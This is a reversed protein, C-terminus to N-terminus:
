AFWEPPLLWALEGGGPTIVHRFDVGAMTGPAFGFRGFGLMETLCRSVDPQHGVCVVTQATREALHSLLEDCRLGPALLLSEELTATQGLEEHLIEATEKARRLPSHLILDPLEERDRLWRGLHAIQRRGAHSLRRDFDTAAEDASVAEAHRALWLHM